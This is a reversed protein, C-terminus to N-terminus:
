RLSLVVASDIQCKRESGDNGWHTSTLRGKNVSTGDNHFVQIVANWLCTKPNDYGPDLCLLHTLQHGYESEIGQVGVVVLWHGSGGEWTVGVIPVEGREICNSM